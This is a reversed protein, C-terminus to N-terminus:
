IDEEDEDEDDIDIATLMTTIKYLTRTTEEMQNFLQLREADTLQGKAMFHSLLRNCSCFGEAVKAGDELFIIKNTSNLATRILASVSTGARDALLKYAAKEEESVRFRIFNEKNEKEKRM